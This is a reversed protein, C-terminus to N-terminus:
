RVGARDKIMAVETEPTGRFVLSSDLADITWGVSLLRFGYIVARPSAIVSTDLSDIADRYSRVRHAWDACDRVLQGEDREVRKSPEIAKAGLVSTPVSEPDIGAARLAVTREVWEDVGVFLSVFRSLTAPDLAGRNLFAATPGNGDTNGTAVLTFDTHREVYGIVPFAMGRNSLASNGVALVSSDSNDVEDWLALGGYRFARFFETEVHRGDVTPTGVLYSSDKSPDFSEPYLKLGTVDSVREAITSKGTGPPGYLFAPIRLRVCDIVDRTVAHDCDLTISAPDPPAQLITVPPTRRDLEEGVIVRVADADFTPAPVAVVSPGSNSGSTSGGGAVGDDMWEQVRSPVCGSTLADQMEQTLAKRWLNAPVGPFAADMITWLHNRKIDRPAVAHLSRYTITWGRCGSMGLTRSGLYLTGDKCTAAWQDEGHSVADSAVSTSSGLV